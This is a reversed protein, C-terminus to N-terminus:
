PLSSSSTRRPSNSPTTSPRIISGSSQSGRGLPGEQCTGPRDCLRRSGQLNGESDSVRQAIESVLIQEARPHHGQVARRVRRLHVRDARRDAQASRAPEQWLVLLLAFEEFRQRRIQENKNEKMAFARASLGKIACRGDNGDVWHLHRGSLLTLFRPKIRDFSRDQLRLRHDTPLAMTPRLSASAKKRM